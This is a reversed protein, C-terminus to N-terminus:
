SQLYFAPKSAEEEENIVEGNMPKSSAWPKSNLLHRLTDVSAQNQDLEDEDLGASYAPNHFTNNFTENDETLRVLRGGVREDWVSGRREVQHFLRSLDSKMQNPNTKSQVGSDVSGQKKAASPHMSERREQIKQKLLKKKKYENYKKKFFDIFAISVLMVAAVALLLPSLLGTVSDHGNTKEGILVDVCM